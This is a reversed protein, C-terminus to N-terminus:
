TKIISFNIGFLSSLGFQLILFAFMLIVFGIIAHVIMNRAGAVAEKDGGSTLMKFAGILFYIIVTAIAISFTPVVLRSTGEGLSKVDGFAYSQGLDVAAYTPSIIITIIIIFIIITINKM